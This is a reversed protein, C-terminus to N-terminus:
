PFQVFFWLTDLGLINFVVTSSHASRGPTFWYEVLSGNGARWSGSPNIVLKKKLKDVSIRPAVLTDRYVARPINALCETKAYHLAAACHLVVNQASELNDKTLKTHRRGDVLVTKACERLYRRPGAFNKQDSGMRLLERGRSYILEPNSGAHIVLMLRFSQQDKEWDGNCKSCAPVVVGNIDGKIGFLEGPIDDRTGPNSAGCWYCYYGRM